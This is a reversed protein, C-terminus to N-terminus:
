PCGPPAIRRGSGTRAGRRAARVQWGSRHRRVRALAVAHPLGCGPTGPGCGRHHADPSMPLLLVRAGERIRTYALDDGAPVPHTPTETYAVAVYFAAEGDPIALCWAEDVEVENGECDLALGPSVELRGGEVLTVQLGHVVGWGHLHRNHRRLRDRLYTQEREFDEATLLRGDFYRTREIPKVM